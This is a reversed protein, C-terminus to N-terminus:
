ANGKDNNMGENCILLFQVWDSDEEANEALSFVPLLCLCAALFLATLRLLLAKMGAPFLVKAKRVTM